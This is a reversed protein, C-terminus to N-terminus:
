ALVGLNRKIAQVRQRLSLDQELVQEMKDCAYMVTTHDKGGFKEGIEPFSAETIKRCLYMAIQRPQAVVKHKRPGKLDTIKVNFHEAVAKQIAEISPKRSREAVAHQFLEQVREMTPTCQNMDCFAMVRTLSGELERMNNGCYTALFDAVDDGLSFRFIEAKRRLIAVKTELEPPQIDVSLGWDLRSKLREELGGIERAPKDSTVIIQKSQNHLEEFTHFFEEQTTEKGAIFQIDDVLLVDCDNRYKRKFEEMKHHQISSVVENTFQESSVYVIRTRPHRRLIEQAVAHILHTKGLGVGGFIFLPNYDNRRPNEAVARCAAYAFDNSKGVVFTDFVYRSNFRAGTVSTVVSAAERADPRQPKEAPQPRPEPAVELVIEYRPEGSEVLKDQFLELFGEQLYDRFFANPVQLYLREGELREFKIPRVWREYTSDKMVQRFLPQSRDWLNSM